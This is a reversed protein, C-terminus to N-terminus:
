RRLIHRVVNLIYLLEHSSPIEGMLAVMSLLELEDSRLQHTGYVKEEKRFEEFVLERNDQSDSQLLELTDPNAMAFLEGRDLGLVKAIRVLIKESPHRRSSELHGVYPTSTEIRLAIEEQTLNLQRRRARITEGFKGANQKGM